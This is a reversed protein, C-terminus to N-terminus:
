LLLLDSIPNSLASLRFIIAFFAEPLIFTLFKCEAEGQATRRHEIYRRFTPLMKRSNPVPM